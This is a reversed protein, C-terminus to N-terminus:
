CFVSLYKYMVKQQTNDIGCLNMHQGSLQYGVRNFSYLPPSLTFLWNGNDESSDQYHLNLKWLLALFKVSVVADSCCTEVRPRIGAALM